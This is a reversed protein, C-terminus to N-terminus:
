VGQISSTPQPKIGDLDILRNAVTLKNVARMTALVCRRSRTMTSVVCCQKVHDSVGIEENWALNIKM